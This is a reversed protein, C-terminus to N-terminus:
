SLRNIKNITKSFKLSAHSRRLCPPRVESHHGRGLSLGTEWPFMMFLIRRLCRDRYLRSCSDQRVLPHCQSIRAGNDCARRLGAQCKADPACWVGSLQGVLQSSSSYQPSKPKTDELAVSALAPPLERSTKAQLFPTARCQFFPIELVNASSRLEGFSPVSLMLCRRIM